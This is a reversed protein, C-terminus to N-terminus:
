HFRFLEKAKEDYVYIDGFGDVDFTIPKELIGGALNEPALLTLFSYSPDFVAIQSEDEDLVYFYGAPDVAIDTPKKFEWKGGRREIRAIREGTLSFVSIVRDKKELLIVNGSSDMEMRLIERETSDPFPSVLKGDKNFHLVRKQKDDYIFVDGLRNRVAGRINELPKPGEEDPMAFILPQQDILLGKENALVPTGDPAIFLGRPDAASKTGGLKGDRDFTLVRKRGRELIHIGQSSIRVTEVDKLDESMNLRFSSDAGFAIPQALQPYGYFRFLHTLWALAEEAESSRPFRNRVRQIEIMAQSPDGLRVSCRGTALQASAAWRSAPYESIVRFYSDMADEWMGQRELAAGTSYLAAPVWSSQPYLRIVRQFNALADDLGNPGVSSRLVVAGINYYAGPAADTTPYDKLIRDFYERAKLYDEEVDLYYVGTKLLADDAYESDGMSIVIAFDNLAQKYRGQEYFQNGSELHKRATESSSTQAQESLQAGLSAILFVAVAIVKTM